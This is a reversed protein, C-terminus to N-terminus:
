DGAEPLKELKPWLKGAAHRAKQNEVYSVIAALDHGAFTLYAYGRQWRLPDGQAHHSAYHSSSGKILKVFDSVAISPPLSCVLHLHDEVGGVAYVFAREERCKQRIYAHLLSEMRPVIMEARRTTAWIFHYYAEGYVDPM